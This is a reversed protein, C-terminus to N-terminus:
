DVKGLEDEVGILFVKEGRMVSKLFHNGAALRSQFEAPSYLTPNVPRGIIREVRALHPLVEDLTVDGVIMLDVDSEATEEQRAMSGYVFAAAIRKALPALASRLLQLAGVTKAVLAQMEVFAPHNRNVQYYVQKGSISRGILGLQSLTELERQVSGVSAGIERAIQRVYFKRDPHGYLLGLIGGRTHGFLM